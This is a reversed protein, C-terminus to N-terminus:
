PPGADGAELELLARKRDLGGAYGTLDGNSGMIRHCPVIIGIPNRGTAGGAARASGAHGAREALEAYTITEGFAVTSIAKWVSRQFPSGGGDVVITDVGTIDGAFYAELRSKVGLPDRSKTLSVEGFRRQLSRQFRDDADAFELAILASDSCAIEIEGLPSTTCTYALIMM